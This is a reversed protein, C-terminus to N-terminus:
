SQARTIPRDYVMRLIHNVEGPISRRNKKASARIWTQLDRDIRVQM